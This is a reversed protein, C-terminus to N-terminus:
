FCLSAIGDALDFLIAPGRVSILYLGALTIAALVGLLARRVGSPFLGTSGTEDATGNGPVDAAGTRDHQLEQRM